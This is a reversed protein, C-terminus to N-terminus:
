KIKFIYAEDRAKSYNLNYSAMQSYCVQIEPREIAAMGVGITSIKNNLPAIVINRDNKDTLYNLLINKTEVPDVLSHEFYDISENSYYSILQKTLEANIDYLGPSISCTKSGYALTIYKPEIINIIAKAREQEFGSLLVLHIPKDHELEGMYGIVSHVDLLGNSLNKSTDAARYFLHVSKCRDKVIHLYKFIILLAERTFTSIDFVISKNVLEGEPLYKLINDVVSYPYQMDIEPQQISVGYKTEHKLLCSEVENQYQKFYFQIVSTINLKREIDTLTFSRNEFSACTIWFDIESPLFQHINELNIKMKM